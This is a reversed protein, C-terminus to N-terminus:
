VAVGTERLAAGLVLFYRQQLTEQMLEPVHAFDLLNAMEMREVRTYLNAALYEHLGTGADALPALMLKALGIYHFQRDFHDLSRQLELTIRDYSATVQDSNTSQLQAFTVDIRRSLFLEGCFTITLLGGEDNFSLVALGRGEPEALASLNRQALEPLDIVSLPIAAEAFRNQWQEIVQNQAVAAFVTHVRVPANPDMPIDLVDVTARDVPYDIMDKLKWRLATKLEADPVNPAELALLQYNGSNLLSTCHYQKAHVEKGLKGLVAAEDKGPVFWCHLVQPKDATRAVIAAFMGDGAKAFAMWGPKKRAKGFWSM